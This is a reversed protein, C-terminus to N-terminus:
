SKINIYVSKKKVYAAIYKSLEDGRTYNRPSIHIYNGHIKFVILDMNNKEIYIQEISKKINIRIPKYFRKYITIFGDDVIITRWIIFPYSFFILTM